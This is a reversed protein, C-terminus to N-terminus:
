AGEVIQGDQMRLVRECHKVAEPSHTVLLLAAQTEKVVEALLDLVQEGTATDLSGTPEDALILAPRHVVARAIAVRQMEGGSLQGPLAAARHAIGVRGMLERVRAEREGPPVGLLQLPLEINEAASLTPLLHYFQFVTGIQKRRLQALGDASLGGLEQGAIVVSGGDARDVGGACNLVTTKGSGSPGLLAVREGRDLRFSVGRLIARQAYSKSLSQVELVPM